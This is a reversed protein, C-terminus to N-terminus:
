IIMTLQIRKKKLDVDLIKVQVIDGISVVE